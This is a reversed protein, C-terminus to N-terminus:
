RAATFVSPRKEFLAAVAERHDPIHQAISQFAAALELSTRLETRQGERILRKTM